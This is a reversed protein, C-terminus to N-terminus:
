LTESDNILQLKLGDISKNYIIANMFENYVDEDFFSLEYIVLDLFTEYYFSDLNGVEVEKRLCLNVEQLLPLIEEGKFILDSLVMLYEYMFNDPNDLYMFLDNKTIASVSDISNCAGNFLFNTIDLISSNVCLISFDFLSTLTLNSESLLTSM